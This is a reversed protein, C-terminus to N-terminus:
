GLDAGIVKAQSVHAVLENADNFFADIKGVRIGGFGVQNIIVEKGNKKPIRTPEDLFTHTHGGLILDISEVEEALKLDSVRNDPYKYGLHSLCIVYDCKLYHKLNRSIGKAVGIPDRYQVGEHNQDLVLSRFDIGLGFIGVKIGNIEKIIFNKVRKELGSESIWYNANLMPFKLAEMSSVLGEVGNDFEHNGLTTADYGLESMLQYDLKGHYLNFYPTGQFVDGADLLLTNPNEARVSKVFSARRAFGGLNGYQPHDKPFPDIRAHTDNTHLITLQRLGKTERTEQAFVSYPMVAAASIWKIFDRRKM